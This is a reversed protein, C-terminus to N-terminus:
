IRLTQFFFAAAKNPLRKTKFTNLHQDNAAKTGRLIIKNCHPTM